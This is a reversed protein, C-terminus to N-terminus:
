LSAVDPGVKDLAPGKQKANELLGYGIDEHFTGDRLIVRITASVGVNYRQSQEHYDLQPIPSLIM